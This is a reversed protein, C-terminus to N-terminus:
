ESHEPLIMRTADHNGFLAYHADRVDQLPVHPRGRSLFGGDQAHIIEVVPVFGVIIVGSQSSLNDADTGIWVRQFGAQQLEALMYALLAPYLRQGRYAPLTGCDWIYAEGENLHMSLGLEGIAEENVSIWGYAVLKNEVRAIYCRRGTRFRQLVPAPDDLGMAEALEGANQSGARQYVAPLRAEPGKVLPKDLWLMWLIGLADSGPSFSM